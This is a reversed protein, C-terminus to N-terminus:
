LNSENLKQIIKEYYVINQFSPKPKKFSKRKLNEYWKLGRKKIINQIIIPDGLHKQKFHCAMSLGIGNDICYRLHPYLGKPFFHHAQQSKENKNCGECIPHLKIIIEYFLKDAIRRLRPITYKSKKKPKPIKM